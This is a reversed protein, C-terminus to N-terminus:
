IQRQEQDFVRDPHSSRDVTFDIPNAISNLTTEAPITCASGGIGGPVLIV